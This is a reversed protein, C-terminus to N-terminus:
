MGQEAKLLLDVNKKEIENLNASDDSYNYNPNEKYWARGEFYERYEKTTFRRGHRAYIENRALALREKTMGSIDSKTLAKTGSEPLIYEGEYMTLSSIDYVTNGRYTYATPAATVTMYRNKIMDTTSGPSILAYYRTGNIDFSMVLGLAADEAVEGGIALQSTLKVNTVGTYKTAAAANSTKGSFYTTSTNAKNTTATGTAGTGGSTGGTSPKKATSANSSGGSTSSTGSTGGTSKGSTSSTGGGSTGGTSGSSTGGGISDATGSIPEQTEMPEVTPTPEPTESPMPSEELLATATPEPTETVKGGIGSNKVLYVATGIAAAAIVAILVAALIRNRKQKARKIERREQIENLQQQKEDLMKKVQAQRKLENEDYVLQKDGDTIKEEAAEEKAEDPNEKAEGLDIKITEDTVSEPEPEDAYREGCFPCKITEDPLEAGCKKCLM